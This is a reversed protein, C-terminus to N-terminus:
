TIKEFEPRSEMQQLKWLIGVGDTEKLIPLNVEEVQCGTDSLAQAAAKVTAVVEPDIPGFFGQAALWGVRLPGTARGLGADPRLSATSCGDSGDPGGASFLGASCRPRLAGDARHALLPTAGPALARDDTRPWPYGQIRRDRHARGPRAGLHIPRQGVR